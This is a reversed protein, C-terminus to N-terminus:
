AAFSYKASACSMNEPPVFFGSEASNRFSTQGKESSSSAVCSSAPTYQKAASSEEGAASSSTKAISTAPCSTKITRYRVSPTKTAEQGHGQLCEPAESYTLHLM